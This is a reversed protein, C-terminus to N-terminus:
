GKEKDSEFYHKVGKLQLAWIMLTFWLMTLLLMFPWNRNAYPDRWLFLREFWYSIPYIVSAIWLLKPTWSAGRVLEWLIPLGSLGWILGALLLYGYLGPPLIMIILHGDRLVGAVRLWGLITWLIFVWLMITLVFPRRPNVPQTPDRQNKTRDAM